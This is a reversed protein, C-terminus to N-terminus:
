SQNTPYATVADKESFQVQSGDGNTIFYFSYAIDAAPRFNQLDEETFLGAIVTYYKKEGKGQYTWKEVEYFRYGLSSLRQFEADKADGVIPEGNADFMNVALLYQVSRGTYHKRAEMVETVFHYEGPAPIAYSGSIDSPYYSVIEPTLLIKVIGILLLCISAAAAAWRQWHIKKTTNEGKEILSAEIYGVAELMEKGRM